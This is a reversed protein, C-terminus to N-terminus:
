LKQLVFLFWLIWVQLHPEDLVNLYDLATKSISPFTIKVIRFVYRLVIFSQTHNHKLMLYFFREREREKATMVKNALEGRAVSLQGSTLALKIHILYTHVHLQSCAGCQLERETM